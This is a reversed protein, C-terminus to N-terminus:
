SHTYLEEKSREYEILVTRMMKAQVMIEEDRWYRRHAVYLSMWFRMKPLRDLRSSMRFIRLLGCSAVLAMSCMSFVCIRPCFPPPLRTSSLWTNSPIQICYKCLHDSDSMGTPLYLHYDFSFLLGRPVSPEQINYIIIFHPSLIYRRHQM